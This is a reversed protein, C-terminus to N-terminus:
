LPYTCKMRRTFQVLVIYDLALGSREGKYRHGSTKRLVHLEPQVIMRDSLDREM